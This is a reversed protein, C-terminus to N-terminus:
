LISFGVRRHNIGTAIMTGQDTEPGPGHGVDTEQTHGIMTETKNVTVTMTGIEIEVGVIMIEEVNM